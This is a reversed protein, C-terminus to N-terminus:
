SILSSYNIHKHFIERIKQKNIGTKGIECPFYEGIPTMESIFCNKSNDLSKIISELSKKNQCFISSKIEEYVDYLNINIGKINSSPGLPSVFNCKIINKNKYKSIFDEIKKPYISGAFHM